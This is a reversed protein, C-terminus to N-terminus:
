AMGLQKAWEAHRRDRPENRRLKPALIDTPSPVVVTLKDYTRRAARAEWAEPLEKLVSMPLLNVHWGHTREFESGILADYCLWALADSDTLTM